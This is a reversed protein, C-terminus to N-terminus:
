AINGQHTTRKKNKNFVEVMFFSMQAPFFILSKKSSAIIKKSGIVCRRKYCSKEPTTLMEVTLKLTDVAANPISLNLASSKVTKTKM